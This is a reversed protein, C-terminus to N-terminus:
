RGATRSREVLRTISVPRDWGQSAPSYPSLRLAASPAVQDCAPLAPAQFAAASGTFEHVEVANLLM